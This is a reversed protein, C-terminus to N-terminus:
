DTKEDSCNGKKFFKCRWNFCTNCHGKCFLYKFDCLLYCIVYGLVSCICLFTAILFSNM